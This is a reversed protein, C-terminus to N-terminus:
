FPVAPDESPGGEPTGEPDPVPDVVRVPEYVGDPGPNYRIIGRLAHIRDTSIIERREQPSGPDWIRTVVIKQGGFGADETKKTGPPLNLDVVLDPEGPGGLWTVEESLAIAPRRAPDGYLRFTVKGGEAEAHVLLPFDYPNELVLDRTPWDVTADRGPPAYSCPRSHGGRSIVKMGAELGANYLTTSVQCIGGGLGESVRRNEYVPAPLYGNKATRQGVTENFSVRGHPPIVVGQWKKVATAINHSRSRKGIDFKTTFSAFVEDFNVAGLSAAKVIAPAEVVPLSVQRPTLRPLADDLLGQWQGADFSRGTQDPIVQRAEWDIRADVASQEVQPRVAAIWADFATQDLVVPFDLTAPTPPTVWRVLRDWTTRPAPQAEELARQLNSLSPQLGFDAPRVELTQSGAELVWPKKAFDEWLLGLHAAADAPTLGSVDIGAVQSGRSLLWGQPSSAAVPSALVGGVAGALLLGGLAFTLTPAPATM